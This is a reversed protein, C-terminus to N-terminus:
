GKGEGYGALWAVAALLIGQALISVGLWAEWVFMGASIALFTCRWWRHM